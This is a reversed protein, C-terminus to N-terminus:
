PKDNEAFPGPSLAEAELEEILAYRDAQSLSDGSLLDRYPERLKQSRLLYETARSSTRTDPVPDPMLAEASLEDLLAYREAQSLNNGSLSARHADKLKQLRQLHEMVPSPKPSLAEIDELAQRIRKALEAYRESGTTEATQETALALVQLGAYTAKDFKREPM